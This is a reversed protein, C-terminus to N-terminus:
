PLLPPLPPLPLPLGPLPLDPLPLDPLPDDPLQPPEIPLEPLTPVPIPLIPVPTPTPQPGPAPAPPLGSGPSPTDGDDTENDTVTPLTSGPTSTGEAEPTVTAGADADEDEASDGRNVVEVRSAEYRGDEIEGAVEVVTGVRIADLRSAGVLATGEGIQIEREVEGEDVVMLGNEADIRTVVARIEFTQADGTESEAVIGIARGADQVLTVPDAATAVATGAAIVAVAAIAGRLRPALPLWSSAPSKTVSRLFHEKRAGTNAAPAYQRIELLQELTTLEPRFDPAKFREICEDITAGEEKMARAIAYVPIQRQTM